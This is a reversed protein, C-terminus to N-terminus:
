RPMCSCVRDTVQVTGAAICEGHRRCNMYTCSIPSRCPCVSAYSIVSSAHQCANCHQSCTSVHRAFCAVSLTVAMTTHKESSGGGRRLTPRPAWLPGLRESDRSPSDVSEDAMALALLWGSQGGKRCHCWPRKGPPGRCCPCAPLQEEAPAATLPNRLSPADQLGTTLSAACALLGARHSPIAFSCSWPEQQALPNTAQILSQLFASLLQATM